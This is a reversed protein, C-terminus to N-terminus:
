QLGDNGQWVLNKIVRPDIGVDPDEGFLGIGSSVVLDLEDVGCREVVILYGFHEIPYVELLPSSLTRNAAARGITYIHFLSKDM